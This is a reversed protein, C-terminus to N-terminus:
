SADTPMVAVGQFYKLKVRLRRFSQVDCQDKVILLSRKKKESYLRVVVFWPTVLNGPRCQWVQQKDNDSEIWLSNKQWVFLEARSMSDRYNRQFMVASVIVSAYLVFKIVTPVDSPFSIAIIALLHVLLQFSILIKSTKLELRLPADFGNSLM